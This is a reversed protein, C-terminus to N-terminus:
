TAFLSENLPPPVTDSHNTKDYPDPWWRTRCTRVWEKGVRREETSVSGGKRVQPMSMEYKLLHISLILLKSVRPGLVGAPRKSPMLRVKVACSTSFSRPETGM